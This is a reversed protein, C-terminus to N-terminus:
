KPLTIKLTNTNTETSYTVIIGISKDSFVSSKDLSVSVDKIGPVSYKIKNILKTTVYYETPKSKNFKLDDISFPSNKFRMDGQKNLCINRIQQNKFGSDQKKVFDGNLERLFIDLDKKKNNM